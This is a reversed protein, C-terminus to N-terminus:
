PCFRCYPNTPSGIKEPAPQAPPDAPRALIDTETAAAPAAAVDTAPAPKKVLPEPYPLAGGLETYRRQLPKSDPVHRLGETVTKLAEKTKNEERQISALEVYASALDPNGNIATEIETVAKANQRLLRLARAKQQHVEPRMYFDPSTHSLVYDCGDIANKINFQLDDKDGMRAAARNTFRVCDCFHHMHQWNNRDSTDHNGYIMVQCMANEQPTKVFPEVAFLAGSLLSLVAIWSLEAKMINMGPETISSLPMAGPTLGAHIRVRVSVTM